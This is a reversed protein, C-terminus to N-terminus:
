AGDPLPSPAEVGFTAFDRVNITYVPRDEILAMEGLHADVFSVGPAAGWRLIARDLIATEGAVGPWSLVHRLHRSIARRDWSRDLRQLVYTVEHVVLPHLVVSIAGSRVRQLFRVCEETRDDNGLAHVIVNTDLLGEAM